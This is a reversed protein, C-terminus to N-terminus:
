RIFGEDLQVYDVNDAVLAELEHQYIPILDTRLDDRTPYVSDTLGPRYAGWAVMNPSPMTIKYPADAHDALFYVEHETIQRLRGEVPKTHMEIAEITGDALTRRVVPYEAAFGELADSVDTQWADRRFEGDTLVEIGSELQRTIADAISADEV